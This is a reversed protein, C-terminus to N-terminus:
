IFPLFLTQPLLNQRRSTLWDICKNYSPPGREPGSLPSKDLVQFHITQPSVHASLALSKIPFPCMPLSFYPLPFWYYQDAMHSATKPKIIIPNTEPHDKALQESELTRGPPACMVWGLHIGTLLIRPPLWVRPTEKQSKGFEELQHHSILEM